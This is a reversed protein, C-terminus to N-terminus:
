PLSLLTLRNKNFSQQKAPVTAASGHIFRNRKQRRLQPHNSAYGRTTRQIATSWTNHLASRFLHILFQKRSWRDKRPRNPIELGLEEKGTIALSQGTYPSGRNVSRGNRHSAICVVAGGTRQECWRDPEYLMANWMGACPRFTTTTRFPFPIAGSLSSRIGDVKSSRALM